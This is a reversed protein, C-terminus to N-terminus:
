KLYFSQMQYIYKLHLYNLLLSRQFSSLREASMFLFLADVLACKRRLIQRQKRLVLHVLHPVFRPWDYIFPLYFPLFVSLFFSFLYYFASLCIIFCILFLALSTVSMIICKWFKTDYKCGLNRNNASLTYLFIKIFELSSIL